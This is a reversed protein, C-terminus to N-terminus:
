SRSRLRSAFLGNFRGRLVNGIRSGIPKRTIHLSKKRQEILGSIGNLLSEPNEMQAMAEEWDFKGRISRRTDREEDPIPENKMGIEDGYYILPSSPVSFLLQFADLIKQKEGNFMTNIRLSMGLNFNYKGTPDFRNTLEVQEDKTLTAIPMEDHHRLLSVWQCDLPIGASETIVAEIINPANRDLALFLRGVIPFLYILHCEDGSGFYKKLASVPDKGSAEGLLVVGPHHRDLYARIKKLAAHTEDLGVSRTGEKKIMHAAADLRFGDVGLRTWFDIVKMMEAFVKPNNWNLDAQEPYFTSFYYENTPISYIWNSPKLVSFPNAAGAFESADKSWLYFDRKPNHLSSKAELFWPHETSTHNLVLDIIVRIGKAHARKMFRSFDKLTGLESRIGRYNSIDYGDDVFPSPYFPLLHICDIGLRELYDLKETMRPFDDAFQDVYVSYIVADKWWGSKM